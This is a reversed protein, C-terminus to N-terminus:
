KGASHQARVADRQKRALDYIDSPVLRDRMVPGLDTAARRWETQDGATVILKRERMRAVAETDLRPVEARLRAGAKRAEDLIVAQDDPSLQNWTDLRMVTAGLLPAFGIDLMYPAHEYWMFLQASLPTMPVADIMGTTLSALMQSADVPVPSFGNDRYWTAMRDDGTSTFLKLRKLDGPSRVPTRSFVHVWGAYGWSLVKLGRAEVRHELVPGITALVGDVEEYSEFFMPLSFVNFGDDLTGMEIASLQAAGLTKSIRLDRLMKEESGTTGPFLRLTVRGNTRRKWADGMERLSRTWISNEPAITAMKIVVDARVGSAALLIGATFAAILPSHPRRSM